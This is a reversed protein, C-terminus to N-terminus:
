GDYEVHSFYTAPPLFDNPDSPGPEACKGFTDSVRM